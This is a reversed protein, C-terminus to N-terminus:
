KAVSFQFQGSTCSIDGEYCVDYSVTYLGRVSNFWGRREQSLSSYMKLQDESFDGGAGGVMERNHLIVIESSGVLPRNTIIMIENPISELLQNHNPYTGIVGLPRSEVQSTESNTYYYFFIALLFIALALIIVPWKNFKSLYDKMKNM